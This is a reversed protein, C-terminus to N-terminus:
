RRKSPDSDDDEANLLGLLIRWPSCDSGEFGIFRKEWLCLTVDLLSDTFRAYIKTKGNTLPCQRSFLILFSTLFSRCFFLPFFLM